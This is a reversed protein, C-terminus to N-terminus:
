EVEISPAFEPETRGTPEEPETSDATERAEIMAREEERSKLLAGLLGAIFGIAGVFLYAQHFGTLGGGVSTVVAGALASGLAIGISNFVGIIALAAGRDEPDAENVAIYRTPAGLLSSLGLGVIVTSLIFVSTSAAITGLMIMGLSTALGGFMLVIRSGVRDLLRGVGPMGVFMTAALPMIMLGASREGLGLALGALTPLFFIGAEGLGATGSLINALVIQRRSFLAPKVVPDEARHEIRWFIPLLVASFALFPWVANLSGILNEGDLQNVGYTFSVLLIDLVVMGLWDFAPPEEERAIPLNRFSLWMVILAIPFNIAFIWAWGAVALIIVGLLPGVIAAVGWLAGVIGLAFGRREPPFTDGIVANAVPFIGGAGAAQIGRGVLFVGLDPASAALLSGAGFLIVDLTYIARRGYIDSLRAMLPMSVINVLVYVTLAWSMDRTSAGFAEELVPFAPAVITIDLAGMFVGLLVTILVARQKRDM